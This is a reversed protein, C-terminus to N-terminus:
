SPRAWPLALCASLFTAYHGADDLVAGDNVVGPCAQLQGFVVGRFAHAQRLAIYNKGEGHPLGALSFDNGTLTGDAQEELAVARDLVNGAFRGVKGDDGDM